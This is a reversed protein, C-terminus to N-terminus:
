RLAKFQAAAGGSPALKLTLSDAKTVALSSEALTTPTAGDQYIRAAFKGEGLFALPLTIEHPQENGMAGLYWDRGKRRAVVVFDDIDGAVFRTEDWVTPVAKVFDFGAANEYVDPSDAVMQFPSEYVVFMGLAQGRTTQVQPPSNVVQFSDPTANRFGGPTYDMPGLLMRTYALSVNHTATVRRSWKNYEAGMVGEQTLYNPYTRNLGAPPYAGHMDVLLRHEAAKAMLRHYYDVMQQDNRDMFDVKIGAIGWKQYQALAADMQRDLLSWQVWLWLRVKRKAAYAVLAPMDIDAKARTVDADAPASGGHGSNLCWGEDIMMYEFGSKGAFDIYKQITPMDTAGRAPPPLYPGSWWDWATKGPKIWSTDFAPDPNLNGILNSEILKGLTDGLMIVRWPSGAGNAGIETRAILSKDDLRRSVRTQVGTMGSGQGGLYLGGYDALNAEAIAFANKGTRCVLPLDYNTQERIYKARVPDFEGEHSSDMRWLNFGHCAHDSGFMFETDEGRVALTKLGADPPLHFRFAVGDDYARFIWQLERAAGSRPVGSISVENFRERAQSAKTAVLKRVQDVSRSNVSRVDLASIDGEALRVRLRSPAVVTEGNRTVTYVLQGEGNQAVTVTIRTDPSHITAPLNQAVATGALAACLALTRISLRM